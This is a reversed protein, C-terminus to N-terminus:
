LNSQLYKTFDVMKLFKRMYIHTYILYLCSVSVNDFWPLFLVYWHQPTQYKSAALDGQLSELMDTYIFGPDLAVIAM